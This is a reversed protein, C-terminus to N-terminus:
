SGVVEKVGLLRKAWAMASRFDENKELPKTHRNRWYARMFNQPHKPKRTSEPSMRQATMRFLALLPVADSRAAFGAAICDRFYECFVERRAADSLTKGGPSFGGIARIHEPPIEDFRRRAGEEQFDFEFDGGEQITTMVPVRPSSTIQIPAPDPCSCSLVPDHSASVPGSLGGSLGGSVPGSLGGSLPQNETEDDFPDDALLAAVARGRTTKMDVEPLDILAVVSLVYMLKQVNRGDEEDVFTRRKLIRLSELEEITRRVAKTRSDKKLGPSIGILDAIVDQEAILWFQTGRVIGGECGKDPTGNAARFMVQLFRRANTSLPRLYLEQDFEDRRQFPLETQTM